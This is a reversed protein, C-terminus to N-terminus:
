VADFAQTNPFNHRDGQMPWLTQRSDIVKGHISDSGLILRALRTPHAPEFQDPVDQGTTLYSVPHSIERAVSLLGGGATAEDLKTLVLSTPGAIAFQDAIRSLAKSGAALSLVLLVHNSGAVRIIQQLEDLKSRDHPSRGATDILILDVDDMEDIAIRLEDPNSATRLPVDLIEAYTRLQEVAGVRYSDVTILGVRLGERLHFHGALKALTTTKGVGTPGVLTFIERRGAQPQIPPACRMEREILATLMTTLALPCDLMEPSAQCRLKAILERAVDDDIEAATLKLYQQFLEHPLDSMGPPRSQRALQSVLTQLSQLNQQFEPKSPESEDSKTRDPNRTTSSATSIWAPPPALQDQDVTHNEGIETIREPLPAFLRPADVPRSMTEALTRITRPAKLEGKRTKDSTAKRSAYQASVEYEQRTSPWPLMRRTAVEKSEVVVADQGLEQRVLELAADMTAARFTQIKRQM